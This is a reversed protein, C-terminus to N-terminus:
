FCSFLKLSESDPRSTQFLAGSHRSREASVKVCDLKMMCLSSVQRYVLEKEGPSKTKVPDKNLNILSNVTIVQLIQEFYICGPWSLQAM